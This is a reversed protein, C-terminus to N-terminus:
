SDGLKRLLKRIETRQQRRPAGFEARPEEKEIGPESMHVERGILTPAAEAHIDNFKARPVRQIARSPSYPGVYVRAQRPDDSWRKGTWWCAEYPKGDPGVRLGVVLQRM